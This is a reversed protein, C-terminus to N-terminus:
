RKLEPKMLRPGHEHQAAKQRERQYADWFTDIDTGIAEYTQPDDLDFGSEVMRHLVDQIPLVLMGHGSGSADVVYHGQEQLILAQSVEHEMLKTTFYDAFETLREVSFMDKDEHWGGFCDREVLIEEPKYATGAEKHILDFTIKVHSLGEKLDRYNQGNRDNKQLRTYFMRAARFNEKASEVAAQEREAQLTGDQIMSFILALQRQQTPTVNEPNIPTDQHQALYQPWRLDLLEKLRHFHSHAQQDVYQHGTINQSAHYTDLVLLMHLATAKQEFQERTLEDELLEYTCDDQLDFGLEALTERIQQINRLSERAQSIDNDRAALWEKQARALKAAKVDSM